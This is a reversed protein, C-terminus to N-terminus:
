GNKVLPEVDEADEDEEETKENVQECRITHIEAAPERWRERERERGPESSGGFLRSRGPGNKQRLDSISV